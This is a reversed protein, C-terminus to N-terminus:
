SRRRRRALVTLGLALGAASGPAPVDYWDVGMLRIVYDGVQGDGTWGTHPNIGGPGDPGSVETGSAFNFIAGSDSVPVRGLGSVAVAYAGPLLVQAGTADTAPTTLLPFAGSPTDNNALLGFAEGPLTINFLFLQPDFNAGTVQLSFMTPQDIRILYMDELDDEGPGFFTGRRLSGSIRALSGVGVVQQATTLVSGADDQEIWDPGALAAAPVVVAAMAAAGVRVFFSM